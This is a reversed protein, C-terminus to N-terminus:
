IWFFHIYISTSHRKSMRNPLYSNKHHLSIWTKQWQSQTKIRAFEAEKAHSFLAELTVRLLCRWASHNRRTTVSSWYPIHGKSSRESKTEISVMQEVMVSHWACTQNTMHSV